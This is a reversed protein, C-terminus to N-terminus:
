LHLCYAGVLLAFFHATAIYLLLLFWAIAVLPVLSPGHCPVDASVHLSCLVGGVQPGPLGFAGKVGSPGEDGPPGQPGPFGFRGLM